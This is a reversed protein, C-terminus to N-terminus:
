NLKKQLLLMGALPLSLSYSLIYLQPVSETCIKIGETLFQVMEPFKEGTVVVALSLFLSVFGLLFELVSFILPKLFCWGFSKSGVYNQADKLLVTTAHYMGLIFMGAAFVLPALSIVAFAIFNVHVLTDTIDYYTTNIIALIAFVSLFVRWVLKFVLEKQKKTDM